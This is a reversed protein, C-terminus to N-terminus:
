DRATAVITGILGDLSSTGLVFDQGLAIGLRHLGSRLEGAGVSDMGLDALATRGDLRTHPALGLVSRVVVTVQGAVSDDATDQPVAPPPFVRPSVVPPPGAAPAGIAPDVARVRPATRQDSLDEARDAPTSWLPERQWAYTPAAAPLGPGPVLVDVDVDAGAVFLDGVATLLHTRAPTGRRASSTVVAPVSATAALEAVARGLARGPGLEIFITWGDALARRVAASFHVPRVMNAVWEEVPDDTPEAATSSYRRVASEQHRLGALKQRLPVTFPHMARSHFAHQGGLVRAFTSERTLRDALEAIEEAPGALTCSRDANVCAIEIATGSVAEAAEAPSLGTALMRGTPGAANMLHTRTQVIRLADSLGVVGAVYAAAVEGLSHGIVAGPRVGLHQWMAAQAVQLAFTAGPTLAPDTVDDSSPDDLLGALRHEGLGAAARRCRDLATRFVVGAGDPGDLMGPWETGQGSFVFVPGPGPDDLVRGVRVDPSAIGEALSRAASEGDAAVLALREDYRDRHRVATAALPALRDARTSLVDAYAVATEALGRRSPHSLLLLTSGGPAGRGDRPTSPPKVPDAQQVLVHVNTGSLGFSSVAASRPRPGGPWPELRQPVRMGFSSRRALPTLESAHLQVPVEGHRVVLAAKLLGAVGAAADLHGLNAKISGVFPGTAADRGYVADLSELEIRDGLQTGTGHAELYGVEEARVGAVVTADTYLRRQAQGNPVTLGASRGDHNVSSGRLVALIDDGSERADSWRKLALVIAGEGRVMGDADAAFPRSRGSPSLAGVRSMFAAIDPALILNAGGALALDCERMRLAQCALHVALLSSSCASNVTFAPGRLGLLYSIRGAAFAPDSGTLWYRDEPDAGAGRLQLHLYDSALLGVYVGTRTGEAAARTTGIRLLAESTVELLLRHQPDMSEAERPSLGFYGADFGAVDDLFAGRALPDDGRELPMGGILDAGSRLLDWFEETSRAGKIRVGADLLAIPEGVGPSMATDM